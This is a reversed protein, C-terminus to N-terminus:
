GEGRKQRKKIEAAAEAESLGAAWTKDLLLGGNEFLEELCKKQAPTVSGHAESYKRGANGVPYPKQAPSGPPPADFSRLFERSRRRVSAEATGQARALAEEVSEGPGVSVSVFASSVAHIVVGGRGVKVEAHGTVRGPEPAAKKSRRSM